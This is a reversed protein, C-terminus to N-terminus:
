ANVVQCVSILTKVLQLRKGAKVTATNHLVLRATHKSAPQNLSSHQGAVTLGFGAM